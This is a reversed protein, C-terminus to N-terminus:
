RRPQRLAQEASMGSGIPWDNWTVETWDHVADHAFRKIKRKLGHADFHFIVWTQEWVEGRPGRLPVLVYVYPELDVGEVIPTTTTSYAVTLADWDPGPLDALGATPVTGKFLRCELALTQKDPNRASYGLRIRGIPASATYSKEFSELTAGMDERAAVGLTGMGLAAALM